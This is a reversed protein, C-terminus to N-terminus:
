AAPPGRPHPISGPPGRTGLYAVDRWVLHIVSPAPWVIASSALVPQDALVTAVASTCCLKHGVHTSGDPQQAAFEGDMLGSCIPDAHGAAPLPMLTALFIQLVFAYLAIVATIVRGGGAASDGSMM